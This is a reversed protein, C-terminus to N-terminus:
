KKSIIDKESKYISNESVYGRVRCLPYVNSCRGIVTGPNLVSNCGIEALDGILSGLKRAGTPISRDNLHVSVETKDSKLNSLVVGAGLHAGYGLISDGIYNYHPAQVKDFLVSNKIETSNGVVCGEGVIVSGRIYAGKRIEADKCIIAPARIEADPSIKASKSIFINTNREKYEEKSLKKGIEIIIEKLDPLIQWPYETKILYEYVLSRKSPFLSVTDIINSM